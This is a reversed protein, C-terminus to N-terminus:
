AFNKDKIIWVIPTVIPRLYFVWSFLLRLTILPIPDLTDHDENLEYGLLFLVFPLSLLANLVAVVVLTSQENRVAAALLQQQQDSPPQTSSVPTQFVAQTPPMPQLPQAFQSLDSTQPGSVNASPPQSQSAPFSPQQAAAPLLTPDNQQQHPGPNYPQKPPGPNYYPQQPPGPNYYPQQPPGPNYYPQQPYVQAHQTTVAQSLMFSQFQPTEYYESVADPTRMRTILAVIVAAISPLVIGVVYGARFMDSSKLDCRWGYAGTLFLPFILIAGIGWPLVAMLLSALEPSSILSRLKKRFCLESCLVIISVGYVFPIFATAFTNAIQVGYCLLTYGEFYRRAEMLLPFLALVIDGLALSEVLFKRQSRLLRGKRLFKFLLVINCALIGIIFIVTLAKNANLSAEEDIQAAM